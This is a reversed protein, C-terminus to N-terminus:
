VQKTIVSLVADQPDQLFLREVGLGFPMLHLTSPYIRFVFIYVALPVLFFTKSVSRESFFLDICAHMYLWRVSLIAPVSHEIQTVTSSAAHISRLINEIAADLRPPICDLMSALVETQRIPPNAPSSFCYRCPRPELTPGSRQSPRDVLILYAGRSGLGCKLYVPLLCPRFIARPHINEDAPFM